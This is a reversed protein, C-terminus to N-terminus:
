STTRSCRRSSTTSSRSCRIAIAAGSCARVRPPSCNPKSPVGSSRNPLRRSQTIDVIIGLMRAPQGVADRTVVTGLVHFWRYTDTPLRLRHYSQFADSGDRLMADRQELVTPRDDPHIREIWEDASVTLPQAGYGMLVAAEASVRVEGAVLDYDWTGEDAAAMALRLREAEQLLDRRAQEGELQEIMMRAAIATAIPFVTIVLPGIARVVQLGMGEPLLFYQSALMFVHVTVGFALLHLGRLETIRAHMLRRAAVGVLAATVISAVGAAVGVGGQLIRHAGAIAVAILAVPAGGFLGALSLIITRGDYFVGPSFTFPELMGVVAVAGFLAGSAVRALPPHAELVRALYRQVVALMVVLAVNLILTHVM